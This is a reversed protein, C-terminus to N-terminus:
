GSSFRMSSTSGAGFLQLRMKVALHLPSGLIRLAESVLLSDSAIWITVNDPYSEVSARLLSVEPILQSELFRRLAERDLRIEIHNSRCPGSCGVYTPLAAAVIIPVLLLAVVTSRL